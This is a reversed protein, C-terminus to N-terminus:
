SDWIMALIYLRLGGTKGLTQDAKKDAARFKIVLSNYGGGPTGLYYPPEFRPRCTERRPPQTDKRKYSRARSTQTDAFWTVAIQDDKPPPPKWSKWGASQMGM